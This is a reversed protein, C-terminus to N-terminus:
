SRDLTRLYPLFEGSHFPDPNLPVFAWAIGLARHTDSNNLFSEEQRFFTPTAQIVSRM